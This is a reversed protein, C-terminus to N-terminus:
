RGFRRSVIVTYQRVHNAQHPNAEAYRVSGNMRRGLAFAVSGNYSEVMPAIPVGTSLVSQRSRSYTANTQLSAFPSWSIGAQSLTTRSNPAMVHSIGGNVQFRPTPTIRLQTSFTTAATGNRGLGTGSRSRNVNADVNVTRLPTASLGAGSQITIIRQGPASDVTAVARRAFSAGVDGHAVFTRSLRMLTRAQLGDVPRMKQDPLWNMTRTASAGLNWGPRADAQAAVSAALFRETLSQAGFTAHRVGGGASLVLGRLPSHMVSLAGDQADTTMGRLNSTRLFTYSFGSSTRPSFQYSGSGSARHVRSTQTAAGTSRSRAQTFDYELTVPARGLRFQSTAGLDVHDEQPRTTHTPGSERGRDGYGARFSFGQVRYTGLLNRAVTASAPSRSNEDLHTRVWSGALEPLGPKRVYGILSLSQQRTTFGQDDRTDTPALAAALGAYRHALRVNGELVRLRTSRGVVTLESFRLRSSFDVDGHLRSFFDTQVTKAWNEDAAFGARKANQYQVEGVARFDQAPAARACLALALVVIFTRPLRRM